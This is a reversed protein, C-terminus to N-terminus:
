GAQFGYQESVQKRYEDNAREAELWCEEHWEYAKRESLYMADHNQFRKFPVVVPKKCWSCKRAM